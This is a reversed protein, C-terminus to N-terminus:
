EVGCAVCSVKSCYWSLCCRACKLISDSQKQCVQCAMQAGSSKSQMQVKDNLSLFEAFPVPIVKFLFTLKARLFCCNRVQITDLDEQRIGMTQDLFGHQHAYLIAVTYGKQYRKSDVDEGHDPYFAVVFDKGLRDRVILRLRLFSEVDTIEGFLCWHRGPSYNTTYYDLDM